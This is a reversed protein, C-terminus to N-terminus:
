EFTRGQAFPLLALKASLALPSFLDALQRSIEVRSFLLTVFVDGSPLDGGFALVSRVGHRVVFDTQAPIHPSGLASQVLFVGFPKRDAAGSAVTGTRVVEALDLGFQRFVEYVMPLRAIFEPDPLPIAKHGASTARDNWAPESGRTALLVLSRTDPAIQKGMISSAFAQLAQDLDGCRHTKYLRALVLASEGSEDPLADYLRDVVRRAVAEMSTCGNAMGRLAAGLTLMDSLQYKTLQTM